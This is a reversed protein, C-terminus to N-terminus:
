SYSSRPTSVLSASHSSGIYNSQSNKSALMSVQHPIFHSKLFMIKLIIIIIIRIIIIRRRKRRRRRRIIIIIIMITITDTRKEQIRLFCLKFVLKMYNLSVIAIFGSNM